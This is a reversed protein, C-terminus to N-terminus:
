RGRDFDTRHIWVSQVLGAAAMCIMMFTGGYSIFPLPIGTIPVVKITMGINVFVHTYLLATVGSAILMGTIDRAEMAARLCLLLIIGETIIIISGGRFGWEEGIVSFIFDNYAINKPLFGLANQTGQLWGKGAWGGSGIAILSQNITWGAGLPDLNPNFFTRIRNMQYPKLFPLPQDWVVAYLYALIAVTLGAAVPVMLYRLRVGGAYMMIFMVPLFVSASGLDPQKLIMGVPILTFVPIGVFAWFSKVRPGLATIVRAMLLIYSIKAAESPEIGVPGVRIWSRAGNVLTGFFHVAILLVFVVGFIPIAWAVWVRYDVLAFVFFGILALPIWFLQARYADRFEASESTYTASYILVISFCALGLMLILM